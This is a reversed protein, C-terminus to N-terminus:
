HSEARLPLDFKGDTINLAADTGTFPKVKGSFTGTVRTSSIGTVTITFVDNGYMAYQGDQGAGVFLQVSWNDDDPRMEVSGTKAPIAFRLSHAFTSAKESYGDSLFFQVKKRKDSQSVWAINNTQTADVEGGSVKTGNLNYSYTASALPHNRGVFATAFLITALFILSRM